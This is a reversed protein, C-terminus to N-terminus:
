FLSSGKNSRREIIDMIYDQRCILKNKETFPNPPDHTPLATSRLNRPGNSAVIV